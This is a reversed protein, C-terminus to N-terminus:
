SKPRVAIIKHYDRDIRVQNPYFQQLAKTVESDM